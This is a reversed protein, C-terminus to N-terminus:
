NRQTSRNQRDQGNDKKKSMKERNSSSLGEVEKLPLPAWFSQTHFPGVLPPRVRLHVPPSTATKHSSGLQWCKDTKDGRRPSVAPCAGKWEGEENENVLGVGAKLQLQHGGPRPKEPKLDNSLLSGDGALSSFLILQGANWGFRRNLLCCTGGSSSREPNQLIFWSAEQQSKTGFALLLTSFASGVYNGRAWGSVMRVAGQQPVVEM